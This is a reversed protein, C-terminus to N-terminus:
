IKSLYSSVGIEVDLLGDTPFNPVVSLLMRPTTMCERMIETLPEVHEETTAEAVLEDHVELVPFGKLVPIKAQRSEYLRAVYEAFNIGHWECIRRQIDVLASGTVYAALLQTPNNVAQNELRGKRRRRDGPPIYEEPIDYLPQIGRGVAPPAYGYKHMYAKRREIEKYVEPYASFFADRYHAVEEKSKDLGQQTRLNQRFLWDGMNYTLALLTAKTLKYRPDKKDQIDTWGFVRAAILLYGGEILDGLLEQSGCQWAFLRAELNRFDAAVFRGDPFRPVLARRASIPWNQVAPETSRRHTKAVLLKYEPAYYGQDQKELPNLVFSKLYDYTARVELIRDLGDVRYPLMSLAAKSLQIDKTKWTIPVEALEKKTYHNHLWERFAGDDTVFGVPIDPMTRALETTLREVESELFQTDLKVAAMEMAFFARTFKNNLELVNRQDPTAKDWLIQYLTAAAFTDRANYALLANLDETDWESEYDMGFERALPKLAKSPIDPYLLRAAVLSDAVRFNAPLPVGWRVLQGLDVKINHNVLRMDPNAYALEGLEYAVVSFNTSGIVRNEPAGIRYWAASRFVKTDKDWELDIALCRETTADM